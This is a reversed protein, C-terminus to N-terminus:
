EIHKLLRFFEEHPSGSVSLRLIERGTLALRGSGDSVFYRQEGDTDIFPPGIAFCRKRLNETAYGYESELQTLRIKEFEGSRKANLVGSGSLGQCCRSM